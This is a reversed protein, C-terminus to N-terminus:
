SAKAREQARFNAEIAVRLERLLSRATSRAIRRGIVKDFLRGAPGGPPVYAGSLVLWFGNYEEDVEATLEGNFQPYAGGSEAAWMISYRPTREGPGRVPEVFALVPQTIEGARLVIRSGAGKPAPHAALFGHLFRDASGLPALVLDKEALQTM